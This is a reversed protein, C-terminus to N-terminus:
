LESLRSSGLGYSGIPSQEKQHAAFPQRLALAQAARRSGIFTKNAWNGNGTITNAAHTYRPARVGLATRSKM